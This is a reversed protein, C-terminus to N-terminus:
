HYPSWRSRCEKGVRREESRLPPQSNIPVLRDRFCFHCWASTTQGPSHSHLWWFMANTHPHRCWAASDFSRHSKLVDARCHIQRRCPSTSKIFTARRNCNDLRREIFCSLLSSSLKLVWLHLCIADTSFNLSQAMRGAFSTLQFIDLPVRLFIRIFCPRYRLHVWGSFFLSWSTKFQPSIMAHKMCIIRTTLQRRIKLFTKM